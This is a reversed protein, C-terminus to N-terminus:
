MHKPAESEIGNIRDDFRFFIGIEFRAFAKEGGNQPATEVRPHFADAVAVVVSM